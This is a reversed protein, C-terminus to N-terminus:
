WVKENIFLNDEQSKIWENLRNLNEICESRPLLPSFAAFMQYGAKQNTWVYVTEKEAVCIYVLLPQKSEYIRHYANEYFKLLRRQNKKTNYPHTFAPATIQKRAYSHYIFHQLGNINLDKVTYGNSKIVKNIISLPGLTQLQQYIRDKCESYSAFNDMKTSIMALIVDENLFWVHAYFYASDNFNPLCIPCVAAESNRFSDSSKILNLIMHIDAPCLKHEKPRAMQIIKDETILM